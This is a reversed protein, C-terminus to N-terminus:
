RSGGVDKQLMEAIMKVDQPVSGGGDSGVHGSDDQLPQKVHALLEDLEQAEAQSQALYDSELMFRDPLSNPTDSLVQITPFELVVQERLCEFLSQSGSIPILVPRASSTHPKVLYFHYASVEPSEAKISASSAQGYSTDPKPQTSEDTPLRAPLGSVKQIDDLPSSAQGPTATSQSSDKNSNPATSGSTKQVGRQVAENTNSAARSEQVGLDLSHRKRKKIKGELLAHYADSLPTIDFVGNDRGNVDRSGDAHIWEVTWMICKRKQNWRSMNMRQRSMGEPARDIIVRTAAVRARFDPHERYRRRKGDESAADVSREEADEAAVNIARHVGTLYNYDHDIGAPTALQSKRVFTTPDRIGSCQARQKHKKSCELSCTRASCRPCKYKPAENHCISCLESLLPQDM